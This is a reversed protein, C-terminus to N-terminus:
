DERVVVTADDFLLQVECGKRGYHWVEPHAASLWSRVRSLGQEILLRRAQAKYERPVPYIYLDWDEANRERWPPGLYSARFVTVPSSALRKRLEEPTTSGYFRLKLVDFQPVGVFARSVIEAGVPYSLEKSIPRRFSTPILRLETGDAVLDAYGLDPVSQLTKLKLKPAPRSSSSASPPASPPSAVLGLTWSTSPTRGLFSEVGTPM